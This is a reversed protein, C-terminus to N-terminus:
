RATYEPLTAGSRPRRRSSIFAIEPECAQQRVDHQGPVGCPHVLNDLPELSVPDWDFVFPQATDARRVERMDVEAARHSEADLLERRRQDLAHRALCRAQNRSSALM